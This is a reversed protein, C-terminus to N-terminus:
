WKGWLSKPDIGESEDLCSDGNALQILFIAQSVYLVRTERVCGTLGLLPLGVNKVIM